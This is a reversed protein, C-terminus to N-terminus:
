STGREPAPKPSGMTLPITSAWPPRTQTSLVLPWPLVNKKVIGVARTVLPATERWQDFTQAVMKQKGVLDLGGHRVWNEKSVHQEYLSSSTKTTMCAKLFSTELSRTTSIWESSRM